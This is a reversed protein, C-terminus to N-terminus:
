LSSRINGLCVSACGLASDQSRDCSPAATCLSVPVMPLSHLQWQRRSWPSLTPQACSGHSGLRAIPRKVHWTEQLLLTPCLPSFGMRCPDQPAAAGDGQGVATDDRRTGDRPSARGWCGWGTSFVARWWFAKRIALRCWKQQVPLRNSSTRDINAREEWWCSVSVQQRELGIKVKREEDTGKRCFRQRKRM